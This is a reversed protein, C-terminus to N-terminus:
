DCNIVSGCDHPKELRFPLLFDVLTKLEKGSFTGSVEPARVLPLVKAGFIVSIPELYYNQPAEREKLKAFVGEENFSGLLRDLTEIRKEPMLFVHPYSATLTPYDMLGDVLPYSLHKIKLGRLSEEVFDIYRELLRDDFLVAREEHMGSRVIKADELAKRALPNPIVGVFSYDQKPNLPLIDELYSPVVRVLSDRNPSLLGPFRPLEPKFFRTSDDSAM